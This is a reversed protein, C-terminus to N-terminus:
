AEREAKFQKLDFKESKLFEKWLVMHLDHYCANCLNFEVSSGSVPNGDRDVYRRKDGLAIHFPIAIKNHLPNTYGTDDKCRDCFIKIM